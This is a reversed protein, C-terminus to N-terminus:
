VLPRVMKDMNLLNTNNNDGGVATEKSKSYPTDNQLSVHSSMEKFYHDSSLM